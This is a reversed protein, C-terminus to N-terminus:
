MTVIKLMQPIHLQTVRGPQRPQVAHWGLKMQLMDFEPTQAHTM